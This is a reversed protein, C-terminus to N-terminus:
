VGFALKLPTASLVATRAAVVALSVPTAWTSVTVSAPVTSAPSLYLTVTLPM